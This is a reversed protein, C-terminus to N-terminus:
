KTLEEAIDRAWNEMAKIDKNNRYTYDVLDPPPQFGEALLGPREYGPRTVRIITGGMRRVAFYENEFRLDDCLVYSGPFTSVTDIVRDQWKKVWIDPDYARGTVTGLNILLDRGRKDKEGDWGFHEIALDKIPQAFSLIKSNRGRVLLQTALLGALTTKGSRPGDAAITILNM